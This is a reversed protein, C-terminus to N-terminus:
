ESISRLPPGGSQLSYLIHRAPDTHNSNLLQIRIEGEGIRNILRYRQTINQFSQEFQRIDEAVSEEVEEGVGDDNDDDDHTCGSEDLPGRSEDMADETEGESHDNYGDDQHVTITEAM